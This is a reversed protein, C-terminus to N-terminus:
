EPSEPAPVATELEKVDRNSLGCLRAAVDFIRDLVIASKGGLAEADADTFLRQGAEDCVTAAALRARINKGPEKLYAAEWRDREGATMTRVFVSGGLSPIEVEEQDLDRAALIQDKTLSM